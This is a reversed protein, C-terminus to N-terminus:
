AYCCQTFTDYLSLYTYRPEDPCRCLFFFFDWDFKQIELLEFM